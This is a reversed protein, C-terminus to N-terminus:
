VFKKKNKVLRKIRRKVWSKSVIIDDDNMELGLYKMNKKPSKEGQQLIYNKGKLCHREEEGYGMFCISNDVINYAMFNNANNTFEEHQDKVKRSDISNGNPTNLVINGYIKLNCAGDDCFIGRNDAMGIYDHIYNYRIIVEDNQTWTYIAGSDMLTYKWNESLYASTYYMENYEVIGKSVFQKYDNLWVGVGIAAYGFDCFENKAVYYTSEWCTVCFSQGLALGCKDFKNNTVRVNECNKMFRVGHEDIKRVINNDFTVNRVNAFVGVAGHIREFTCNHIYVQNSEVDKMSILPAGSKNGKFLIGSINLTIGKSKDIKLFCSAGALHEERVNYVRFRPIKGRFVYDFNVNYGQNQFRSLWVLEPAVFFVGQSDIYDVDYIQSRYSQTVQVKSMANREETGWQNQFPIMCRKNDKDVVQIIDEAQQMGSWASKEADEPEVYSTLIAKAGIISIAADKEVNELRIHNEKFVYVGKEIKVVINKYDKKIADEIKEKVVDFEQQNKIRVVYTTGETKLERFPQPMIQDLSDVVQRIYTDNNQGNCFKFSLLLLVIFPLKNIM